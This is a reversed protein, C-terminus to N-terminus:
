FIYKGNSHVCKGFSTFMGMAIECISTQSPCLNVDCTGYNVQNETSNSLANFTKFNLTFIMFLVIMSQLLNTNM